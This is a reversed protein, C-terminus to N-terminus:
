PGAGAFSPQDPLGDDNLDEAEPDETPSVAGDEGPASSTVDAEAQAVEPLDEAPERDAPMVGGLEGADGDSLMRDGDEPNNLRGYAVMPAAAPALSAAAAMAAPDPRAGEMDPFVQEEGQDTLTPFEGLNRQIAADEIVPRAAEAPDRTPPPVEELAVIARAAALFRATGGEPRGAEDWLLQARDRVRVELADWEEQTM